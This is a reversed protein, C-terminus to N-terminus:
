ITYQTKLSKFCIAIWETTRKWQGKAVYKITRWLYAATSYRRNSCFEQMYNPRVMRWISLISYYLRKQVQQQLSSLSLFLSSFVPLSVTTPSANKVAVSLMAPLYTFGTDCTSDKILTLRESLLQSHRCWSAHKAFYPKKEEYTRKLEFCALPRKLGSCGEGRRTAGDGALFFDM